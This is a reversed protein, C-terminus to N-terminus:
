FKYVMKLWVYDGKLRNTTDTEPLWKLEVSLLEKGLPQIYGLVPGLGATRGKFAGLTAGAGSDGTVQDFYFAEAGLTLFGSGVPLIQQIAGDFHLLSGSKYNTASNETNVAYGARLMANFGSTKNSYSLGLNPDFTWYNLGPNGLRGKEYSGTPAYVPLMTDIQWDGNKWALMLPVITLDGFGSVSNRRAV